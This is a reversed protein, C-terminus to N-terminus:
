LTYILDMANLICCWALTHGNCRVTAGGLYVVIYGINKVM